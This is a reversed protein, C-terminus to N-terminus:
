TSAHWILQFQQEYATAWAQNDIVLLNERNEENAAQSWNFSGTIIIHSDIIAIKDHLLGHRHDVRIDIGAAKLRQYESGTRNVNSEDWVIKIDMNPNRQKANLIADGIVNLTFSYIMIHISTNARDIWHDIVEACRPRSTPTFCYSVLDQPQVTLTSTTTVQQTVTQIQTRSFLAGGIAIGIILGVILLALPVTLKPAGLVRVPQPREFLPPQTRAPAMAQPQGCLDCFRMEDDLERSCAQCIKM